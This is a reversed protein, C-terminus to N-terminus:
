HIILIIFSFMENLFTRPILKQLVKLLSLYVTTSNINLINNLNKTFLLYIKESELRCILPFNDIRDRCNEFQTLKGIEM